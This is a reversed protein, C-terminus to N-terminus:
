QRHHIASSCLLLRPPSLTITMLNHLYSHSPPPHLCFFPPAAPPFIPTSLSTVRLATSSGRTFPQLLIDSELKYNAMVIGKAYHTEWDIAVCLCMATNALQFITHITPYTQSTFNDRSYGISTM